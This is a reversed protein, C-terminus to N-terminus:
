SGPQANPGSKHGGKEEDKSPTSPTGDSNDSGNGEELDKSTESPDKVQLAALLVCSSYVHCVNTVLRGM